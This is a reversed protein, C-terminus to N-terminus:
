TRSGRGSTTRERTAGGDGPNGRVVFRLLVFFGIAVMGSTLILVARQWWAIGASNGAAAGGVILAIVAAFIGLIEVIRFLNDSVQARVAGVQEDLEDLLRATTEEVEQQAASTARAFEREVRQALDRQERIRWRESMRRDYRDIENPALLMLSRDVAALAEDYRGLRRLAGAERLLVTEDRWAAAGPRRWLTLMLEAADPIGEAYALGDQLAHLVSRDEEGGRALVANMEIVGEPQNQVLLSWAYVAHTYTDLSSVARPLSEVCHELAASRFEYRLSTLYLHLRARGAVTSLDSRMIDDGNLYPRATNRLERSARCLKACFEASESWDADLQVLWDVAAGTWDDGSEMQRRVHYRALRLVHRRSAPADRRDAILEALDPHDLVASALSPKANDSEALCFSLFLSGIDEQETV